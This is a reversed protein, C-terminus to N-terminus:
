RLKFYALAATGLLVAGGVVYWMTRDPKEEEPPLAMIPVEYPPPAPMPPALMAPPPPAVQVAPAAAAMLKAARAEEATMLKSKLAPKVVQPAAAVTPALVDLVKTIIPVKHKPPAFVNLFAALWPTPELQEMATNVQVLDEKAPFREPGFAPDAPAGRPVAGIVDAAARFWASAAKEDETHPTHYYLPREECYKNGIYGYPPPPVDCATGVVPWTTSLYAHPRQTVDRMAARWQETVEPTGKAYVSDLPTSAPPIERWAQATWECQYGPHYKLPSPSPLTERVSEPWSEWRPRIKVSGDPYRWPVEIPFIALFNTYARRIREELGHQLKTKSYFAWDLIAPDKHGPM